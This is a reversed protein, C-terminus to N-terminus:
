RIAQGYSTLRFFLTLGIAVLPGVTLILLDADRLVLAGIQWRFGFHPQPYGGEFLKLPDAKLPQGLAAALFLQSLGISAVMLVLRPAAFLRRIVVLEVLGSCLMAAVVALP